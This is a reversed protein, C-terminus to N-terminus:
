LSWRVIGAVALYRALKGAAILPVFIILPTRALGALVTLPDGVVPVWSLLLSWVGYRAYFGQFREIQASSAPRKVKKGGAAVLFGLFWNVCAGLTNGITATAILAPVSLGSLGVAAALAVESSGPLLTASLFASVFLAFYTTM